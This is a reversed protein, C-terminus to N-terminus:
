GSVEDRGVRSKRLKASRGSPTPAAVQPLHPRLSHEALPRSRRADDDDTLLRAVLLVFLSAWKNAGGAPQEIVREVRRADVAVVDVDRIRYLVELPRAIRAGLAAQVLSRVDALHSRAKRPELILKRQDFGVHDNAEAGRRGLRHQTRGEADGLLATNGDLRGPRRDGDCGYM